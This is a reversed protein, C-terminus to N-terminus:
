MEVAMGDRIEKKKFPNNPKGGAWSREGWHQITDSYGEYACTDM